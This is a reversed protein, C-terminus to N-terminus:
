KIDVFYYDKNCSWFTIFVDFINLGIACFRVYIGLYRSGSCLLTKYISYSELFRAASSTLVKIIIKFPLHKM